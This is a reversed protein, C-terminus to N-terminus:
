DAKRFRPRRAASVMLVPTSGRRLVRDAVHGLDLPSISARRHKLLVVLRAQNEGAFRIIEEPISGVIVECAVDIGKEGLPTAVRELYRMAGEKLERMRADTYRRVMHVGAGHVQYVPELVQLFVVESRLATAFGETPGIVMECERTGDLPVVIKRSLPHTRRARVLLVPKSSARVVKDAVSGIAWRRIGSLGHTAMVIFEADHQQAHRLIEEAAHGMSLVPQVEVRDTLPVGTSEERDQLQLRVKEAVRELYGHRMTAFDRESPSYVHLLVVSLGSDSVIDMVYDLAIEALESGDLPVLISKSM